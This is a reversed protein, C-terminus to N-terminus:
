RLVKLVRVIKTPIKARKLPSFIKRFTESGFNKILYKVFSASQPYEVEAREPTDGINTVKLLEAIPVLKGNQKHKQMVVDIKQGPGVIYELADSGLTEAVYVAFGEDFLPPPSGLNGSIIHTMEHFPDLQIDKNYVEVLTRDFAWGEGTHMTDSTKTDM